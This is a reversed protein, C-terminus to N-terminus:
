LFGGLLQLGSVLVATKQVLFSVSRQSHHAQTQQPAPQRFGTQGPDGAMLTSYMVGAVVENSGGGRVGGLDQNVLEGGSSTMMGSSMSTGQDMPTARPAFQQPQSQQLPPNAAHPNPQGTAVDTTGQGGVSKFATHCIQLSYMCPFYKELLTNFSIPVAADFQVAGMYLLSAM